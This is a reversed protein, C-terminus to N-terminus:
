NFPKKISNISDIIAQNAEIQSKIFRVEEYCGESKLFKMEETYAEIECKAINACFDLAFNIDIEKDLDDLINKLIECALDNVKAKYCRLCIEDSSASYDPSYKEAGKNIYDMLQASLEEYMISANIINKKILRPRSENKLFQNIIDLEGTGNKCEAQLAHIGEHILRGLFLSNEKHNNFAPFVVSIEQKLLSAKKRGYLDKKFAYENETNGTYDITSSNKAQIRKAKKFASKPCYKKYIKDIDKEKFQHNTRIYNILDKELAECSAEFGNNKFHINKSIPLSVNLNNKYIYNQYLNIQNIYM